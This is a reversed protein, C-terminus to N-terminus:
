KAKRLMDASGNEAIQFKNPTAAVLAFLEDDALEARVHRDRAAV